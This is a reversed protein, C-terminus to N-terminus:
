RGNIGLNQFLLSGGSPQMSSYHVCKIKEKGTELFKPFYFQDITGGGNDYAFKNGRKYIRMKVPRPFSLCVDINKEGDQVPFRNPNM